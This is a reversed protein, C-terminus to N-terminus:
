LLGMRRGIFSISKLLFIDIFCKIYM